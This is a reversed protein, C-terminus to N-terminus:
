GHLVVEVLATVDTRSSRSFVYLSYAPDVWGITRAKKKLLSSLVQVRLDSRAAAKPIDARCKEIVDSASIQQIIQM